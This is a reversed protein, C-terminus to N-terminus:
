FNMIRISSEVKSLLSKIKHETINSYYFLKSVRIGEIKKYRRVSVEVRLKEETDCPYLTKVINGKKDVIDIKHGTLNALTM